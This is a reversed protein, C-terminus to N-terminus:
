LPLVTSYVPKMDVGADGVDCYLVCWRVAVVPGEISQSWAPGNSSRTQPPLSWSFWARSKLLIWYKTDSVHMYIHCIHQPILQEMKEVQLNKARLTLQHGCVYIVDATQWQLTQCRSILRPILTHNSSLSKVTASCSLTWTHVSNIM